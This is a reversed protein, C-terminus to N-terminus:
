KQEKKYFADRKEYADKLDSLFSTKDIYGVNEYVSKQSSGDIYFISPFLTVKFRDPYADNKDVILLVDNQLREKVERDSLTTEILKQCWHCNKKVIVMVLMKKEKKVKQMAAAFDNEAGLLAAEEKANGAFLSYTFLILLLFRRM